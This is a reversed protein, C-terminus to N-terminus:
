SGEFRTRWRNPSASALKTIRYYLYCLVRKGMQQAIASVRTEVDAISTQTDIASFPEDM